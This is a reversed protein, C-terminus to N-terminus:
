KIVAFRGVKEGYPSEIHYIYTGSAIQRRELSQLNWPESGTGDTHEITEVLDGSITYIRITCRDPLNNFMLTAQGPDVEVMSSYRAFYPNPVVKINKLEAAADGASVGDVRFAFRDDPSNLRPGEVTYVDGVAPNYRTEDFRFIWSFYDPWAVDFMSVSPTYPYNVVCIYDYPDWIGNEDRDYVSASVRENSSANWIEFPITYGLIYTNLAEAETV